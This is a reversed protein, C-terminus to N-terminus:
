WIYLKNEVVKWEMYPSRGHHKDEKCRIRSAILGVEKLLDFLVGKENRNEYITQFTTMKNIKGQQLRHHHKTGHIFFYHINYSKTAKVVYDFILLWCIDSKYLNMEEIIWNYCGKLKLEFQVICYEGLINSTHTRVDDHLFKAM